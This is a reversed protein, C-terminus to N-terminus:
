KKNERFAFSMLLIIFLDLIINILILTIRPIKIYPVTDVLILNIICVIAAGIFNGRIIM